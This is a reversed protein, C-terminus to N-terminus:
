TSTFFIFSAGSESALRGLGATGLVMPAQAAKPMPYLACSAGDQEGLDKRLATDNRLAARLRSSGRGSGGKTGSNDDVSLTGWLATVPPRNEWSCNWGM